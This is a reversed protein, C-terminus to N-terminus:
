AFRSVLSCLRRVHTGSSCRHAPKGRLRSLDPINLEARLTQRRIACSRQVPLELDASVNKGAADWTFFEALSGM